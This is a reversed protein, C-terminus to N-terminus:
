GLADLGFNAGIARPPSPGPSRIDKGPAPARGWAQRRASRDKLQLSCHSIRLRARRVQPRREEDVEVIDVEAQLAFVRHGGFLEGGIGAAPQEPELVLEGVVVVLAAPPHDEEAATIEVGRLEAAEAGVEGARGELHHVARRQGAAALGAGVDVHHHVDEIREAM